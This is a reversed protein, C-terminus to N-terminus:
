ISTDTGRNMDLTTISKATTPPPAATPSPDKSYHLSTGDSRKVRIGEDSITLSNGGSYEILTNGSQRQESLKILGRLEQGFGDAGFVTFGDQRIFCRTGSAWEVAPADERYPLGLFWAKTAAPSILGETKRNAPRTTLQQARLQQFIEKQSNFLDRLFKM